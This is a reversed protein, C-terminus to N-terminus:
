HLQMLYSFLYTVRIGTYLSAQKPLLRYIFFFSIFYMCATISRAFPPGPAFDYPPSMDYLLEVSNILFIRSALTASSVYAGLPADSGEDEKLEFYVKKGLINERERM